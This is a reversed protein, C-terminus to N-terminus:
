ILNFKCGITVKLSRRKQVRHEQKEKTEVEETDEYVIYELDDETNTAEKEIVACDNINEEENEKDSPLFDNDSHEVTEGAVIVMDGLDDFDEERKVEELIEDVDLWEEMEYEVDDVAGQNNTLVNRPTVPETSISGDTYAETNQAAEVSQSCEEDEVLARVLTSLGIPKKEEEENVLQRNERLERDTQLVMEKFLYAQLLHEVCSNCIHVPFTNADNDNTAFPDVTTCYNLLAGLTTSEDDILTEDMLHKYDGCEQHCARCIVKLVLTM